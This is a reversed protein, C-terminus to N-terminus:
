LFLSVTNSGVITFRGGVDGEWMSDLLLIACASETPGCFRGRCGGTVPGLRTWCAIGASELPEIWMSAYRFLVCNLVCVRVLSSILSHFSDVIQM